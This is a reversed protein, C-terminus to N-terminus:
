RDTSFGGSTQWLVSACDVMRRARILRYNYIRQQVSLNRNSYPRLVHESLVFAEDGVVVFPMGKGNTM